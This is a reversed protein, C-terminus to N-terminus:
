DPPARVGESIALRTDPTAGNATNKSARSVVAVAVVRGNLSSSYRHFKASAPLPEQVLVGLMGFRLRLRAVPGTAACTNSDGPVWGTQRDTNSPVFAAVVM